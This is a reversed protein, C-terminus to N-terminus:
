GPATALDPHTRSLRNYAVGLLSRSASDAQIASLFDDAPLRWLLSPAVTRVTATRPLEHLLGIEGFFSDAGM